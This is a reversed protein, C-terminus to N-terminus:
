DKPQLAWRAARYAEPERDRLWLLSPGTMGAALPNALRDRLWADLERYRDLLAVSRTDAWLVAPRTPNGEVDSLVVGHM